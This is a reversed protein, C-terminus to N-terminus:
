RILMIQNFM